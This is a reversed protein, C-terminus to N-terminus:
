ADTSFIEDWVDAITDITYEKVSERAAAGLNTRLLQNDMCSAMKEALDKVDGHKYVLGTEGDTVFELAGPLNDPVVAPVGHAMAELLANPSGEYRSALVFLAARHYYDSPDDVHGHLLVRGKLNRHGIERELAEREEGDGLIDLSWEPHTEKLRGFAEILLGQQKVPALRGVHLIRTSRGPSARREPLFVPNPVRKLKGGSVYARMGDLGPISNATVVDARRYFKERLWHWPWGHNQLATDSRESVVIKKGTGICALITIVNIRTLFSLVIPSSPFCQVTKRLRYVQRVNRLLGAWKNGSASERGIVVRHVNGPLPYHDEEEGGMTILNVKRGRRIWEHILHVAVREAGGGSLGGLVFTIEHVSNHVTKRM